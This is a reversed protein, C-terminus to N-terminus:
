VKAQKLVLQERARRGRRRAEPAWVAATRWKGCGVLPLRARQARPTVGAEQSIEPVETGVWRVGAMLPLSTPQDALVNNPPSPKNMQAVEAAQVGDFSYTTITRTSIEFRSRQAAVENSLKLLGEGNRLYTLVRHHKVDFPVGDISNRM